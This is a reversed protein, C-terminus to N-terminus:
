NSLIVFYQAFQRLKTLLKIQNMNWVCAFCFKDPKYILIGIRLDGGWPYVAVM